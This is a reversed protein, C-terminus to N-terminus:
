SLLRGLLKGSVSFFGGIDKSASNGIWDGFGFIGPYVLFGITIDSYSVVM